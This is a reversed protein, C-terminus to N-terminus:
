RERAATAYAALAAAAILIMVGSTTFGLLALSTMLGLFAVTGINTRLVFLATEPHTPEPLTNAHVAADWQQAGVLLQCRPCYVAPKTEDRYRLLVDECEHGDSTLEHEIAWAEVDAAELLEVIETEPPPTPVVRTPFLAGVLGDAVGDRSETRRM